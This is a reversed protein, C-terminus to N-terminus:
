KSLREIADKLNLVQGQPTPPSAVPADTDVPANIRAWMADAEGLQNEVAWNVIAEPRIDHVRVMKGDGTKMRIQEPAGMVGLGKLVRGIRATEPARHESRIHQDWYEAVVNTNVLYKGGGIRIAQGATAKSPSVLEKVLWETVLGQFSGRTAISEHVKSRSGVVLFREGPVVQRNDRLWLAHEAIVDQDVWGKVVAAGGLGSLYGVAASTDIHLFRESMAQIDDPELDENFALLRENNATLILRPCGHLDANSVFKRSLTRKKTGILNRLEVSSQRGGKKSPLGEDALILPCRTLDENFNDVIRALETAGGTSWLRALGAAFLSKGTGPPGSLYLACTLMDLRTVTAVWDLLRDKESGGLAELWAQVQPHHKAALPRLPCVAEYFTGLHEDYRSRQLDLHAEAREAQTGYRAVMEEATLPRPQGRSGTGFWDLNARSLRDRLTGLLFVSGFPASYRAPQGPPCGLDTLIHFSGGRQIIWRRNLAEASDVGLDDMIQELEDADYPKPPDEQPALQVVAPAAPPCSAATGVAPTASAAEPAAPDGAAVPTRAAFKASLSALEAREAAHAARSDQQSRRMKDAAKELEERLSLRAGPEAAWRSLSANWLPLLDDPHGTGIPNDPAIYAVAGALTNMNDDRQDDAISEGALLAAALRRTDTKKLAGLVQKVRAIPLPPGSPPLPGAPLAIPPPMHRGSAISAGIALDAAWQDLSVREGGEDLVTVVPCTCGDEGIGCLGNVVNSQCQPLGHLKSNRTGPTRLVRALDYTSDVHLGRATAAGIVRLQLAELTQEALAHRAPDRIDELEPFLYYLHLGYGSSVVMTPTHPLSEVLELATNIDAPLPTKAKHAPGALDIDLWLGPLWGVDKSGGRHTVDLATSAVRLGVGYYNWGLGVLGEESADTVTGCHYSQKDSSRWLSLASGAPLAGGARYLTDFFAKTVPNASM